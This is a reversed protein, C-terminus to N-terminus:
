VGKQKAPAFNGVVDFTYKIDHFLSIFAGTDEKNFDFM